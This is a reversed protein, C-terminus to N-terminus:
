DSHRSVKGLSELAELSAMTVDGYKRTLTAYFTPEVDRIFALTGRVRPWESPDLRGIKYQYIDSKIRTKRGLGISLSHDPTVVIGTISRRYRKSLFATKDHNLHLDAFRCLRASEEIKSLGHSLESPGFSSLFLDDAYRTYVLNRTECWDTIFNDFEFMMINTLIPSSPAGITLANYRCVINRVFFIDDNSIDLDVKTCNERLFLEVHDGSFSPFFSQFDAHLTFHSNVHRMANERISSGTSYATSNRHVPFRKFLARSLWRQIAKIERSPQEIVRVGGTRKPIAYVKYRKSATEAYRGLQRITLGTHKQLRELLM